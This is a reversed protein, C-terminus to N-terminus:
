QQHMFFEAYKSAPTQILQYYLSIMMMMMMMTMVVM